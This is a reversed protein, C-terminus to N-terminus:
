CVTSSLMVQTLLVTASKVRLEVGREVVPMLSGEALSREGRWCEDEMSLDGRHRRCRDLDVLMQNREPDCSVARGYDGACGVRTIRFNIWESQQWNRCSANSLKLCVQLRNGEIKDIDHQGNRSPM